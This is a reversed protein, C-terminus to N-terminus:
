AGPRLDADSPAYEAASSFMGSPNANEIITSAKTSSLPNNLSDQTGFFPLLLPTTAGSAQVMTFIRLVPHDSVLEEIVGRSAFQTETCLAKGGLFDHVVTSERLFGIVDQGLAMQPSYCTRTEKVSRHTVAIVTVKMVALRVTRSDIDIITTGQNTSGPALFAGGASGSSGAYILRAHAPMAPTERYDGFQSGLANLHSAVVEPTPPEPPTGRPYVVVRTLSAPVDVRFSGRNHFTTKALLHIIPGTSGIPSLETQVDILPLSSHPTYENQIWFQVLGILPFLAVVAIGTRTLAGAAYRSLYLVWCLAVAGLGLAIGTSGWIQSAPSRLDLLWVYTALCVVFVQSVLATLVSSHTYKVIAGIALACTIGIALLLATGLLDWANQTLTANWVALWLVIAGDLAVCLVLLARIRPRLDGLTFTHHPEAEDPSREPDDKAIKATAGFPTEIKIEM